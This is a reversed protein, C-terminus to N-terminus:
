VNCSCSHVSCCPQWRGLTVYLSYLNVHSRM